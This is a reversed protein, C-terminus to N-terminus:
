QSVTFSGGNETQVSGDDNVQPRIQDPGDTREFSALIDELDAITDALSFLGQELQGQRTPTKKTPSNLQDQIRKFSRKLSALTTTFNQRGLSDGRFLQRPDEAYRALLNQIQVNPRFVDARLAIQIRASVEGLVANAEAEDPFLVKGAVFDTVANTGGKLFAEAGLGEEAEFGAPIISEGKGGPLIQDALPVNSNVNVTTSTKFRDPHLRREDSLRAAAERQKITAADVGLQSEGTPTVDVQPNFIDSVLEGGPGFQFPNVPKGAVAQASAQRQEFPVTIDAIDGRFGQEQQGLQANIVQDPNAGARVAAAIAANDGLDLQEALGERQEAEDVRLRAQALANTTAARRANIKSGLNLGELRAGERDIDGGVIANGLDFFGETPM